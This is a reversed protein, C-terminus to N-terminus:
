QWREPRLEGGTTVLLHMGDLAPDPLQHDTRRHVGRSERRELAATAILRALPYPDDLLGELEIADRQPGARRWVADRTLETPPSFRWDPRAPPEREPETAAARAARAGFVFCESLSNSALRNAGHLGTCACEGVAFLGELTTRGDLDTVVGGIL